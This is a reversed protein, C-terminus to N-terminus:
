SPHMRLSPDNRPSHRLCGVVLLCLHVAFKTLHYPHYEPLTTRPKIGSREGFHPGLHRCLGPVGDAEHHSGCRRAGGGPRGPFRQRPYVDAGPHRHHVRGDQPGAARRCYVSGTADRACSAMLTRWLEGDCHEAGLTQTGVLITFASCSRRGPVRIVHRSHRWMSMHSGSICSM